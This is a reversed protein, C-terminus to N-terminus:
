GAYYDRWKGQQPCVFPQIEKQKHAVLWIIVDRADTPRELRVGTPTSYRLHVVEFGNLELAALLAEPSFVHLGHGFYGNVNTHLFYTGGPAIMRLCNELCQRTDFLHELCGIDFLSAYRAHERAPVPQNMDYSLDARPDFHDLVTVDRVGYAALVGTLEKAWFEEPVAYDSARRGLLAQVRFGLGKQLRRLKKRPALAAFPQRFLSRVAVDQFGFVLLPEALVGPLAFVERYYPIHPHLIAV